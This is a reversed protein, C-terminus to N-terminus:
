ARMRASPSDVRRRRSAELTPSRDFRSFLRPSRNCSDAAAALKAADRLSNSCVRAPEFRRRRPGGDNLAAAVTSVGAIRRASL